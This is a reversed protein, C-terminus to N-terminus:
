VPRRDTSRRDQRDKAGKYIPNLNICRNVSNSDSAWAELFLREGKKNNRYKVGVNEWDMEHQEEQCYRYIAARQHQKIRTSLNKGTEGIYRSGCNSCGVDYVVRTKDEEEKTGKVKTLAGHLTNAPKHAVEMRHMRLLRATFESAGKVYPLTVRRTVAQGTDVAKKEQTTTWRRIGSKLYVNDVFVKELHKREEKLNEM